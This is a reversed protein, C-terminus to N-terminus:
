VPVKFGCLELIKQSEAALVTQLLEAGEKSEGIVMAYYKARVKLPHPLDMIHIDTMKQALDLATTKYGLFLDIRGDDFLHYVPSHPGKEKPSNKGGVLTLARERLILRSGSQVAETKDFVAFAYDGGPDDIPTSTGIRNETNLMNKLVDDSQMASSRGFLCLENETFLVPDSALGLDALIQGHKLNASLFLAPCDGSVIREQLVGSPGLTTTVLLDTNEFIAPLANRLSGASFVKVQTIM